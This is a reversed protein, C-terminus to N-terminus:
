VCLLAFDPAVSKALSPSSSPATRTEGNILQETEIDANLEVPTVEDRKLLQIGVGKASSGPTLSFVGPIAPTVPLSGGTGEFRIHAKAINLNAPDAVCARLTINFPVANTTYGPATFDARDWDGLQM